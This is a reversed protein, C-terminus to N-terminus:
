ERLRRVEREAEDAIRETKDRLMSIGTEARVLHGDTVGTMPLDIDLLAQAIAGIDTQDAHALVRLLWERTKAPTPLRGTEDLLAHAFATLLRQEAGKGRLAAHAFTDDPM